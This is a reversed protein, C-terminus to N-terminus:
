QHNETPQILSFYGFARKRESLLYYIFLCYSPQKLILIRFGCFYYNPEENSWRNFIAVFIGRDFSLFFSLFLFLLQCMRHPSVTM